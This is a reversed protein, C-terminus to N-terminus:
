NYGFNRSFNSFNGNGGKGIFRFFQQESSQSHSLPDFAPPFRLFCSSVKPFARCFRKIWRRSFYLSELAPKILFAHFVRVLKCKTIRSARLHKCSMQSLIMEFCTGGVLFCGNPVSLKRKSLNKVAM